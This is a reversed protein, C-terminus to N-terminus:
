KQKKNLSSLATKASEFDPVLDLTQQYFYKADEINGLKEYSKAMWFYADSQYRDIAVVKSLIKLSEDYKNIEYLVIAKEIYPDLFTYNSIIAEDFAQMAILPKGINVFYLGMIYHGQANLQEKNIGKQKILVKAVDLAKDSKVAAFLFGLQYTADPQSSDKGLSEQFIAIAKSTDLNNLYAMGLNNLLRTDSPNNNIETELLKIANKTNGADLQLNLQEKKLISSDLHEETKTSNLEKSAQSNCCMLAFLPLIFFYFHGSQILRM